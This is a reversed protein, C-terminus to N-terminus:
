RSMIDWFMDWFMTRSLSKDWFKPEWMAGTPARGAKVGRGIPTPALRLNICREHLAAVSLYLDLLRQM